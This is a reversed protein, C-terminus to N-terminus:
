MANLVWREVSMQFVFEEQLLFPAGDLIHVLSMCCTLINAEGTDTHGALAILTDAASM